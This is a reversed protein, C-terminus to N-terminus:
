LNELLVDEKSRVWSTMKDIYVVIEWIYSFFDQYTHNKIDSGKDEAIVQYLLIGM